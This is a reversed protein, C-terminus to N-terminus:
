FIQFSILERNTELFFLKQDFSPIIRYKTGEIPFQKILHGANSLFVLSDNLDAVFLNSATFAVNYVKETMKKDTKHLIEGSTSFIVLLDNTNLLIEGSESVAMYLKHPYPRPLQFTRKIEGKSNFITIFDKTNELFHVAMLNGLPSIAISKYFLLGKEASRLNVIKKILEGKKDLRYIEGGSFLIVSGNQVTHALDTLFRGDAQKIGAPNGNIDVILVQNGDGSILFNIEGTFSAVPYSSSNKKWLVEGKSSYYTIKDGIKKYGFFGKGLIPFDLYEEESGIATGSRFTYLRSEDIRYGNLMELINHKSRSDAKTGGGMEKNWFWTEKVIPIQYYQNSPLYISLFIIFLGYIIYYIM